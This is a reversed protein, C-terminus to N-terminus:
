FFKRWTWGYWRMVPDKGWKTHSFVSPAFLAFQIPIIQAQVAHRFMYCSCTVHVHLMYCSRTVVSCVIQGCVAEELLNHKCLTDTREARQCISRETSRQMLSLLLDCLCRHFVLFNSAVLLTQLNPETWLNNHLQLFKETNKCLFSNVRQM